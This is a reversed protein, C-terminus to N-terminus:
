GGRPAALAASVQVAQRADKESTRKAAASRSIFQWLIMSMVVWSGCGVVAATHEPYGSGGGGGSANATCM